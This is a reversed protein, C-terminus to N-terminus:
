RDFWRYQLAISYTQFDGGVRVSYGNSWALKTSWSSGLPVSLTIGYRSNEQNDQNVIGSTSTQGGRYYTADAALWLGPRFNYGAHVQFSYLPDQSRTNGGFYDDNETFLWVGAAGEVFWDGIPQSVGIEPKFAWRNAGINILKSGDYQGTPAVASVSVGLSTTPERRRFEEFTLAPGGLLNLAFRLRADGIGSRYVEGRSEGVDGSVNARVYPLAASLSASRGALGFTRAYALFVSNINAEVNTVPISPDFLVGGTSHAYGVVAFNTGVPSASYARPELEQARAIAASLLAMCAVASQVRVMDIPM